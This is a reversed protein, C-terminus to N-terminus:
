AVASELEDLQARVVDCGQQWFDPDTLDLGLPKLLDAPALSGGRRLLQLYLAVFEPGLEKWRAHLGLTLFKGFAYSYCYFRAFVFHPIQMWRNREFDALAVREGWMKRQEESWLEGLRERSLTGEVRARHARLEWNVYSIQHFGTMVASQVQHDLLQCRVRPDSCNAVLHEHLWLEAFVSATEALPLGTWYNLPSQELSLYFHLAHGFEHALTIVDNLKGSYNLMVWPHEPPYGPSCFAGATQGRVPYVHVWREKLFRRAIAGAEPAFATFAQVVLDSAEAWSYSPEDGFLPARLDHTAYDDLGLLRARLGQYRHVLSMNETATDLLATVVDASLDDKLVTYDMVDEYGREIMDGRHDDFLTNFIFTLVEQQPEFGEYMSRRAQSRLSRDPHSGYVSMEGRTLHKEEGDEVMKFSLGSTLQTYLNVWSTKGTVDKRLITREEAESLTHPSFIRQYRLYHWFESLAPDALLSEVREDSLGKLEVSFFVVKQQLQASFSQAAAYASREADQDTAVAFRLSAFHEPRSSVRTIDALDEFARCLGSADLDAVKGKYTALFTDVLETASRRDAEIAPDDPGSYLDSLDWEGSDEGEHQLTM